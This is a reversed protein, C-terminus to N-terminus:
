LTNLRAFDGHHLAASENYAIAAAEQSDFYSNFVIKGGVQLRGLWKGHKKVWSVGKYKSSMQSKQRRNRMNQSHSCIRLNNKQNNLGDGDVHDVEFGNPCMMIVRHMLIPITSAKKGKLVSFARVARCGYKGSRSATWKYQKLFEFDSDDVKSFCGRSLPILKM